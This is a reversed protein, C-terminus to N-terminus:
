AQRRYAMVMTSMAAAVTIIGLTMHFSISSDEIESEPATALWVGCILTSLLLIVTIIIMTRM